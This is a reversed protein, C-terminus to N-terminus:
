AKSRKRKINNGKENIRLQCKNFDITCGYKNLFDTGLLGQINVGTVEKISEIVGELHNSIVLEISYRRGYNDHLLAECINSSTVSGGIGDVQHEKNEVAKSYLKNYFRTCIHSINSGSDVIFNFEEEGQYLKIIPLNVYKYTDKFTLKKVMRDEICNYAFALLFGLIICVIGLIM